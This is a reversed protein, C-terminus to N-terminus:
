ELELPNFVRKQGGQVSCARARCVWICAFCCICLIIVFFINMMLLHFGPFFLLPSLPIPRGPKNLINRWPREKRKELMDLFFPAINKAKNTKNQKFFIALFQAYARVILWFDHICEWSGGHYEAAHIRSTQKRLIVATCAQPTTGLMCFAQTQNQPGWMCPIEACSPTTLYQFTLLEFDDEVIYYTQLWGSSCSVRWLLSIIM